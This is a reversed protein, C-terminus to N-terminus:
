LSSSSQRRFPFSARNRARSFAILMRRRVGTSTSSMIRKVAARLWPASVLRDTTAHDILGDATLEDRGYWRPWRDLALDALDNLLDDLIKESNDGGRPDLVLASRSETLAAELVDRVRDCGIGILTLREGRRLKLIRAGLETIAIRLLAPGYPQSAALFDPAHNM